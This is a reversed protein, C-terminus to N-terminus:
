FPLAEQEVLKEIWGVAMNETVAYHMAVAHLRHKVLESRAIAQREELTDGPPM